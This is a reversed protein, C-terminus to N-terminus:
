WSAVVKLVHTDMGHCPHGEPWGKWAGRREEARKASESVAYQKYEPRRMAADIAARMKAIKEPDDTTLNVVFSYGIFNFLFNVADPHDPHCPREKDDLYIIGGAESSWRQGGFCYLGPASSFPTGVHGPLSPDGSHDLRPDPLWRSLADLAGDFTNAPWDERNLTTGYIPEPLSM